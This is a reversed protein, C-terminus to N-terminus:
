MSIEISVDRALGMLLLYVIPPPPLLSQVTNAGGGTQQHMNRKWGLCSYIQREASMSKSDAGFKQALEQLVGEVRKWL